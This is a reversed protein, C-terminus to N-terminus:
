KKWAIHGAKDLFELVPERLQPSSPQQPQGDYPAAIMDQLGMTTKQIPSAVVLDFRGTSYKDGGDSMGIAGENGPGSDGQKQRKALMKVVNKLRLALALWNVVSMVKDRVSKKKRLKRLFHWLIIGVSILFTLSLSFTVLVDQDHFREENQITFSIGLTLAILNFLFSLDLLAVVTSKFPHIYTQITTFGVLFSLELTLSFTPNNTGRNAIITYIICTLILRAGFWFRLKEKYPAVTADVYTNLRTSNFCRQIYNSFTFFVVYPLLFSAMTISGLLILFISIPDSVDNTGDFLWVISDKEGESVITVFTFTDIVTRFLKLFTIYLM